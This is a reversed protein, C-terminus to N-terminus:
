FKINEAMGADQMVVQIPCIGDNPMRMVIMNICVM